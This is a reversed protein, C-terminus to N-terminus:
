TEYFFSTWPLNVLFSSVQNRSALGIAYNRLIELVHLPFLFGIKLANQATCVPLLEFAPTSKKRFAFM